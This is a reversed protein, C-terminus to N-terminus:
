KLFLISGVYLNVCVVFQGHRDREFVCVCPVHCLVDKHACYSRQLVSSGQLRLGFLVVERARLQVM